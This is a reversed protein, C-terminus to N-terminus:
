SKGSLDRYIRVLSSLYQPAIVRRAIGKLKHMPSVLRDEPITPIWDVYNKWYKYAEGTPRDVTFYYVSLSNRRRNEPCTLPIPFGHYTNTGTYFVVCRNYIPLIKEVPQTADKNWLELHGGWEEQWDRNLYLIFNLTQHFKPNAHSSADNHVMLRGGRGTSHMGAARFSPDPAVHEFGTLSEIFKVFANSNLQGMFHRTFNGFKKEDSASIKEVYKDGTHKADGPGEIKWRIKDPAPFEKALLEIISEPLFNDIVVHPFPNAKAFSERHQEALDQLYKQDFYFAPILELTKSDDEFTEFAKIASEVTEFAALAKIDSEVTQIGNM